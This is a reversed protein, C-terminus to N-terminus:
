GSLQRTEGPYGTRGNRHEQAEELNFLGTDMVEDLAVESLTTEVIKAKANLSRIIGKM